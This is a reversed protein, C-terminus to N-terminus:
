EILDRHKLTVKYDKQKLWAYLHEAVFVSRHKGGTCGIAITLYSKGEEAYYPILPDLFNEFGNIFISFRLKLKSCFMLPLISVPFQIM